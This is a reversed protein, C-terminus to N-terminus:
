ELILYLILKEEVKAKINSWDNSDKYREEITKLARATTNTGGLTQVYLKRPDDDLLLKALHNSGDTELMMDGVDSINGIPYLGHLSEPTPYEPNHKILNPYVKAYCDIMKPIWTEGTWRMASKERNGSYHFMSSTLIIGTIDMDNSYLLLRIFSNMDDIEGDTTVVTRLKEM